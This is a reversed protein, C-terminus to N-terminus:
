AACMSEIWREREGAFDYGAPAYTMKLTPYFGGMGKNLWGMSVLFDLARIESKSLQGINCLVELARPYMRVITEFFQARSESCIYARERNSWRLNLHYAVFGAGTSYGDESPTRLAIMGKAYHAPTRTYTFNRM